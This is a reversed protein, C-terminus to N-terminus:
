EGDVRDSDRIGAVFGSAISDRYEEIDCQMAACNFEDQVSPAGIASAGSCSPCLYGFDPRGAVSSEASENTCQILEGRDGPHRRVRKQGICRFM